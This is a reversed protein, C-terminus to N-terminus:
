GRYFLTEANLGAREQVFATTAGKTSTDSPAQTAMQFTEGANGNKKAYDFTWFATTGDTSIVAGGNGTQSPLAAAFSLGDAYAKTVADGSATPTGLGTIKFGGAALNATLGSMLVFLGFAALLDAEGQRADEIETAYGELVTILADYKAPYDTGLLPVRYPDFDAM